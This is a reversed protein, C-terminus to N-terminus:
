RREFCYSWGELDGARAELDIAEVSQLAFGNSTFLEGIEGRPLPELGADEDRRRAGRLLLRGGRRTVRAVEGAYAKRLRRSVVHLCGRDLVVDVFGDRFPLRTADAATWRIGEALHGRRRARMLGSLSRDIGVLDGTTGRGARGPAGAGDEIASRVQAVHLLETGTGCGVDLVRGEISGDDLWRQLEIPRRPADWHEREDGHQYAIDWFSRRM